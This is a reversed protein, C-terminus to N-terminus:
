GPQDVPSIAATRIRSFHGMAKKLLQDPHIGLGDAILILSGVSPHRNAALLAQLYSRSIRCKSAMEQRRLGCRRAEVVLADAFARNVARVFPLKRSRAM